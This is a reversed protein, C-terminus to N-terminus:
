EIEIGHRRVAWTVGVAVHSRGAPWLGGAGVFHALLMPTAHQTFSRGGPLPLGGYLSDAVLFQRARLSRTDNGVGIGKRAGASGKGSRGELYGAPL